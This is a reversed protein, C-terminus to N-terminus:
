DDFVHPKNKNFKRGKKIKNITEKEQILIQKNEWICEENQKKELEFYELLQILRKM